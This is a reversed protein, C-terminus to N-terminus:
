VGFGSGVLCYIFLKGDRAQTIQATQETVLNGGNVYNGSGNLQQVQQGNTNSSPFAAKRDKKKQKKLQRKSLKKQKKQKPEVASSSHNSLIGTPLRAYNQYSISLSITFKILVQTILFLSLRGFVSTALNMLM